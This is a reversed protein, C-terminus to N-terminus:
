VFVLCSSVLESFFFPLTFIMSTNNNQLYSDNNEKIVFWYVSTHIDCYQGNLPIVLEFRAM